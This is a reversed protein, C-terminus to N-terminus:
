QGEARALSNNEKRAWMFVPKQGWEKFEKKRETWPWDHDDKRAVLFEPERHSEQVIRGLHERWDGFRTWSEDNQRRWNKLCLIRPAMNRRAFLKWYINVGEMALWSVRVFKRKGDSAVIWLEASEREQSSPHALFRRLSLPV